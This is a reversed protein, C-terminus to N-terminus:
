AEGAEDEAKKMVWKDDEMLYVHAKMDPFITKSPTPNSLMFQFTERTKQVYGAKEVEPSTSTYQVMVFFVAPDNRAQEVLM